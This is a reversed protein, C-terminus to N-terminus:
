ESLRFEIGNEALQKVLKAGASPNIEAMENAFREVRVRSADDNMKILNLLIGKEDIPDIQMAMRLGSDVFRRRVRPDRHQSAMMARMMFALPDHHALVPLASTAIVAADGENKLSFDIIRLGIKISESVIREALSAINIREKENGDALIKNVIMEARPTDTRLLHPIIQILIASRGGEKLGSEIREGMRLPVYLYSRNVIEIWWSKPLPSGEKISDVIDLLWAAAIAGDVHVAVDEEQNQSGDWDLYHPGSAAKTQWRGPPRGLAISELLHFGDEQICSPRLLCAGTFLAMGWFWRDSDPAIEDLGSQLWETIREKLFHDALSEQSELIYRNLAREEDIARRVYDPRELELHTVIIRKFGAKDLADVTIAQQAITEPSPEIVPIGEFLHPPPPFPAHSVGTQVLETLLDHSTQWLLAM